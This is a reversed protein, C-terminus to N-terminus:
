NGEGKLVAPITKVLMKSDYVISNNEAYSADLQVREPFDVSSRGSVQWPGTLGPKVGLAVKIYKKSHPFRRQQEELEDVHFARPGVLSMEGRLINILQPIEDISTKRIFKGIRTIRPDDATPIKFSNKKYKQYFEKFKPDKKLTTHADKIMSRFKYMKFVEGEKGVRHPADAFIPGPSELKIAVATILFLPTTLVIGALSLTIDVARKVFFYLM